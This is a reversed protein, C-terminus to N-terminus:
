ARGAFGGVFITHIKGNGPCQSAFRFTILHLPAYAYYKVQRYFKHHGLLMQPLSFLSQWQQQQQQNFPSFLSQFIPFIFLAGVTLERQSSLKTNPTQAVTAHVASIAIAATLQSLSLSLLQLVGVSATVASLKSGPQNCINEAWM